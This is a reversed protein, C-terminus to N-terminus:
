SSWGYRSVSTNCLESSFHIISNVGHFCSYINLEPKDAKDKWCEQPSCQQNILAPAGRIATVEFCFSTM